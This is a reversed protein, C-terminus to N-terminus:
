KVENRALAHLSARMNCSNAFHHRRASTIQAHERGCDYGYSQHLSCTREFDMLGADDNRWSMRYAPKSEHKPVFHLLIIWLSLTISIQLKENPFKQKNYKL